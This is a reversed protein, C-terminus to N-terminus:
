LMETHRKTIHYKLSSQQVFSENCISCVHKRVDLHMYIHTKLNKKWRFSKDCYSCKYPRLGTHIISHKLLLGNSVFKMECIACTFQKEGMHYVKQHRLVQNPFAFKKGCAGCTPLPLGHAKEMHFPRCQTPVKEPCLHCSRLKPRQKLHVHKYHQSLLDRRKFNRDCDACQWVTTGNDVRKIFKIDREDPFLNNYLFKNKVQFTM